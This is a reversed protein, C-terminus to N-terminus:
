DWCVEEVRDCGDALGTLSVGDVVDGGGEKEPVGCRSLGGVSRGVPGEHDRVSVNYMGM